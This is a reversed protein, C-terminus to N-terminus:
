TKLQFVTIEGAKGKVAAQFRKEMSFQDKVKNYTTESILIPIRKASSLSKIRAATNVSDGIVTYEMRRSSGINGAVAPGSNIGICIDFRPRGRSSWDRNLAEVARELKLACRVAREDANPAPLPAGWYAMVNDGVFKDVTGDHEFIIDMARSFYENLMAVLQVADVTGLMADFNMVEVFMITVDCSRGGLDLRDPDKLIEEAVAKSVYSSFTDRIRLRLLSQKITDQRKELLEVAREVSQKITSLFAVTEDGFREEASNVIAVAGRPRGAVEFPFVAISKIEGGAAGGCPAVRADESTNMSVFFEGSDMVAHYLHNLPLPEADPSDFPRLRGDEGMLHFEVWDTCGRERFFDVMTSMIIRAEARQSFEERIDQTRELLSRNAKERRLVQGLYIGIMGVSMASFLFSMSRHRVYQEIMFPSQSLVLAFMVSISSDRTFYMGSFIIPLLVLVRTWEYLPWEYNHFLGIIALSAISSIIILFAIRKKM